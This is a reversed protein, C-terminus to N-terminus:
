SINKAKFIKEWTKEAQVKGPTDDRGFSDLSNTFIISQNLMELGSAIWFKEQM